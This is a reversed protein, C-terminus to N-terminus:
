KRKSIITRTAFRSRARRHMLRHRWRTNSLRGKNFSTIACSAFRAVSRSFRLRITRHATRLNSGCTAQLTTAKHLRHLSVTPSLSAKSPGCYSFVTPCVKKTASQWEMRRSFRQRFCLFSCSCYGYRFPAFTGSLCRLHSWQGKNLKLNAVHRQLYVSASAGSTM